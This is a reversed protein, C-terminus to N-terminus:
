CSSCCCSGCAAAVDVGFAQSISKLTNEDLEHVAELLEKTPSIDIQKLADEPNSLILQRFNADHVCKNLLKLFETKSLEQNIDM